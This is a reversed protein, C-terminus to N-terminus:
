TLLRELEDMQDNWDSRIQKSEEPDCFDTIMLDILDDEPFTAIRFHLYESPKRGEGLWVLKLEHDQIIKVVKADETFNEWRFTYTQLPEDYKVQDAMWNQLYAPQTIALFLDRANCNFSYKLELKERTM